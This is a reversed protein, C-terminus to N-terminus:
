VSPRSFNEMLFLSALVTEPIIRAALFYYSVRNRSRFYNKGFLFIVNKLGGFQATNTYYFRRPPPPDLPIPGEEVEEAM